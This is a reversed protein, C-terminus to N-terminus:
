GQEVTGACGVPLMRLQEPGNQDVGLLLLVRPRRHSLHCGWAAFSQHLLFQGSWCIM